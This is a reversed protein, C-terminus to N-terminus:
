VAAQPSLCPRKPHFTWGPKLYRMAMADDRGSLEVEKYLAHAREADAKAIAIVLNRESQM